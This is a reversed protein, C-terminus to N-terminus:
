AARRPGGGHTFGEGGRRVRRLAASRIGVEASGPRAARQQLQEGVEAIDDDPAVVQRRLSELVVIEAVPLEAQRVAGIAHRDVLDARTWQVKHQRWSADVIRNALLLQFDLPPWDIGHNCESACCNRESLEWCLYSMVGM